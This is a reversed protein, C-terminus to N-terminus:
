CSSRHLAPRPALSVCVVARHKGDVKSRAQADEIARDSDTFTDGGVWEAPVVLFQGREAM